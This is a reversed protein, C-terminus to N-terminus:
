EPTKFVQIHVTAGPVIKLPERPSLGQEVREQKRQRLIENWEPATYFLLDVTRNKHQFKFRKKEADALSLTDFLDVVDKPERTIWPFKWRYSCGAGALVMLMGLCPFWKKSFHLSRKMGAGRIPM